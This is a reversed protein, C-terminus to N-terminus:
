STNERKAGEYSTRNRIENQIGNIIQATGIFPIRRRITIIPLTKIKDSALGEVKGIDIM